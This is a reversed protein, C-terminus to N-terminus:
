PEVNLIMVAVAASALPTALGLSVNGTLVAAVSSPTSSCFALPSDHPPVSASDKASDHLETKAGSPALSPASFSTLVASANPNLWGVPMVPAAVAEIGGAASIPSSRATPELAM